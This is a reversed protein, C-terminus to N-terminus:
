WINNPEEKRRESVCSSSESRSSRGIVQERGRGIRRSLWLLVLLSQIMAIRQPHYIIVENDDEEERPVGKNANVQQMDILIEGFIRILYVLYPFTHKL